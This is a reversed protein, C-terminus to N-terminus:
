SMGHVVKSKFKNSVIGRFMEMVARVWWSEHVIYVKGVRKKIQRDLMNYIKSIWSWSPKNPAGCAFFVLVYSSNPLRSIIKSMLEPTYKEPSSPFSTSNMIVIPLRTEPDFTKSSYVIRQALIDLEDKPYSSSM